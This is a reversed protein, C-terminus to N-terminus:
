WRLLTPFAKDRREYDVKTVFLLEKHDSFDTKGANFYQHSQSFVKTEGCLELIEKIDELRMKNESSNSKSKYTNNYSVVIYKTDLVSVLDRFADVARVTCYASM